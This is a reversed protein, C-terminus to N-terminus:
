PLPQSKLSGCRSTGDLIQFKKCPIGRESESGAATEWWNLQESMYDIFCNTFTFCVSAAEVFICQHGRAAASTEDKGKGM